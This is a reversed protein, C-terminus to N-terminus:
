AVQYTGAGPFGAPGWIFGSMRTALCPGSTSIRLLGSAFRYRGFISPAAKPGGKEGAFFGPLHVSYGGLRCRQSCRDLGFGGPDPLKDEETISGTPFSLGLNAHVEHEENRWLEILASVSIDGIGDSRTTFTRGTGTQHDMELRVLPVMLSLTVKEIPAYMLGFMHMEMEMSTPTVNFDQLVKGRSISEDGERMGKMEMRMYRYSLMAEGKPHPHDGMVGIPAHAAPRSHGAHPSEPASEHDAHDAHVDEEAMALPAVACVTSLVFLVVCLQTGLPQSRMQNMM